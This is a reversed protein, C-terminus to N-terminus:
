ACYMYYMIHLLISLNPGIFTLLSSSLYLNFHQLRSFIFVQRVPTDQGVANSDWIKYPPDFIMMDIGHLQFRVTLKSFDYNERGDSRFRSTWTVCEGLIHKRSLILIHKRSLIHSSAHSHLFIQQFIWLLFLYEEGGLFADAFLLVPYSDVGYVYM